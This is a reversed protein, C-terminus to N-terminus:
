RVITINVVKGNDTVIFYNGMPMTKGSNDTGDWYAPTSLEKLLRGNRNYIKVTGEHPIFYSDEIDDGNPTFVPYNELCRQLVTIENELTAICDRDDIVQLNYRGEPVEKLSTLLQGTLTNHLRYRFSGINNNVESSIVEVSGEEWCDAEQKRYEASLVELINVKVSISDKAICGNEDVVEIALIADEYLINIGGTVQNSWNIEINSRSEVDAQIVVRDCEQHETLSIVPTEYVEIYVTDTAVCGNEDAIVVYDGSENIENVANSNADADYFEYGLYDFGDLTNYAGECISLTDELDLSISDLITIEIYDERMCFDSEFSLTYNGAESYEPVIAGEDDIYLGAPDSIYTVQDIPVNSVPLVRDAGLCMSTVPYDIVHSLADFSVINLICSSYDSSDVTFRIDFSNCSRSLSHVSFQLYHYDSYFDLTGEGALELTNVSDTSYVLSGTYSIDAIGETQVTIVDEEQLPAGDLRPECNFVIYLTTDCATSDAAQCKSKVAVLGIIILLIIHNRWKKM